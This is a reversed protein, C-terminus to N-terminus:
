FKPVFRPVNQSYSEYEAGFRERLEREELIVIVYIMPLGILFVIYATLWNAFLAYGLVGLLAEVYRPHRIKAYIGENLLKGPYQKQSLEPMGSLIRFTLFKKRKIGIVAASIIAIAALVIMLWSTGFDGVMLIGRAVYVFYGLVVMPLGLITYTWVPGLKRWFNAFPHIFLWLILGPPMSILLILAAFYRVNEM